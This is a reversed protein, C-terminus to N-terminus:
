PGASSQGNGQKGGMPKSGSGQGANAQGGASEAAATEPKKPAIVQQVLASTGAGKVRLLKVVPRTSRAADDLDKIVVLVQTLLVQPASVVVGNAREDTGVSLMGKFRPVAASKGPDDSLYSMISTYFNDSQQRQQPPQPPMNAILAKDNPSLLDRFVEKVM